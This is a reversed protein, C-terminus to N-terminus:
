NKGDLFAYAIVSAPLGLHWIVYLWGTGQLGANLLGSPAFAGPFSLAHPVVILASFLYGSGLALLSASGIIRSHTLLLYATFLDCMFILSETVAVFSHVPTVKIAGFPSAVVGAALVCIAIAFMLRRQRLPPMILALSSDLGRDIRDSM